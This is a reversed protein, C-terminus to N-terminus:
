RYSPNSLALQYSNAILVKKSDNRGNPRSFFAAGLTDKDSEPEVVDQM